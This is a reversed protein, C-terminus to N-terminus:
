QIVRMSMCAPHLRDPTPTRHWGRAVGADAVYVLVTGVPLAFNVGHLSSRATAKVTVTDVTSVGEGKSGTVGVDNRNGRADVGSSTTVGTSGTRGSGTATLNTATGGIVFHVGDV